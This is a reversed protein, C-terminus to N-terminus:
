VLDARHLLVNFGIGGKDAASAGTMGRQMLMDHGMDGGGKILKKRLKEGSAFKPIGGNKNPPKCGWM